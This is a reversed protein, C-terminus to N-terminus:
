RYGMLRCLDGDLASKMRIEDGLNLVRPVEPDFEQWRSLGNGNPNGTRAFNLWYQQMQLTLRDDDENTALWEDHMGFVYPIEAGHYAGVQQGLAGERIRTFHYVYASQKGAAVAGAMELSPCLMYYATAIRDLKNKLDLPSLLRGVEERQELLEYSRLYRDLDDGDGIYMLWENANMGIMLPVAVQRGADFVKYPFERLGHGGVAAGYQWEPLHKEVAAQLDKADLNRMAAVGEVDLRQSLDSGTRSQEILTQIQRQQYGASQHIARHFLGEAMPSAMLYGINEAGSSEGFITVNDPDGGFDDIHSQIWQLAAILDLLGYNGASGSQEKILDPHSFFGFIGTRYPVSVVVVDKRALVQGHYNPEYSWGGKNSGGHIWVMVPMKASPSSLDRSWINLYLCDEDYGGRPSKFVEPDEGSFRVLDMYWNEIHLGQMCAAAFHDAVHMQRKPSYPAPPRWRLDRVPPAAFPIGKFAYVGHSDEIGTWSEPALGKFEAAQAGAQLALAFILSTFKPMDFLRRWHM